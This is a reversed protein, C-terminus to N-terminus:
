LYTGRLCRIVHACKRKPVCMMERRFGRGGVQGPGRGGDGRREVWNGLRNDCVM